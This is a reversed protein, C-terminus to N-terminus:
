RASRRAGYRRNFRDVRGATDIIKMQGTYYPHTLNSVEVSYLPYTTGEFETTRATAVTSSTLWRQGLTVDEFVVPRYTPHIGTKM